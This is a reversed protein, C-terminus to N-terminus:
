TIFDLSCGWLNIFNFKRTSLFRSIIVAALAVSYIIVFVYIFINQITICIIDNREYTNNNM